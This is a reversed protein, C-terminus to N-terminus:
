FEPWNETWENCVAVDGFAHDAHWGYRIADGEPRGTHVQALVRGLDDWCGSLRGDPPLYQLVVADEDVALVQPVPAGTRGLSRLMAAEEVPDPGNKVVVKRGDNLYLLLTQATDGGQLPHWNWIQAGLLAAGHRALRTM